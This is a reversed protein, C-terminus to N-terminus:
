LGYVARIGLQDGYGLDRQYTVGYGSYGYMTLLADEANYLDGLGAWHGFEHTVINQVDMKNPQSTLSWAYRTNLKMDVEAIDGTATYTWIMTVAIVGNRYRGWDIVNFGDLKGSIRDTPGAYSFVEAQTEDDWTGASTTIANEVQTETFGYANNPNIVYYATTSFSFGLLEFHDNLEPDIPQPPAPKIPKGGPTGDPKGDARLELIVLKVNSPNAAALIPMASAVALLVIVFLALTKTKM